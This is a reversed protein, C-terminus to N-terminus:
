SKGDGPGDGNAKKESPQNNMPRIATRGFPAGMMPMYPRTSPDRRGLFMSIAAIIVLLLLGGAVIWEIAM